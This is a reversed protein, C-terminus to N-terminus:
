LFVQVVNFEIEYRNFVEDLGITLLAIATESEAALNETL